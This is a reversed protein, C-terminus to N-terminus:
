TYAEVLCEGRTEFAGVGSATRIGVALGLYGEDTGEELLEEIRAQSTGYRRAAMRLTPYRTGNGRAESSRAYEDAWDFLDKPTLEKKRPM